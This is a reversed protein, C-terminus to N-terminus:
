HDMNQKAFSKWSLPPHPLVADPLSNLGASHCSEIEVLFDVRELAETKAYVHVGEHPNWSLEQFDEELLDALVLSQLLVFYM